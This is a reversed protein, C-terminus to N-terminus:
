IAKSSLYLYNKEYNWFLSLGIDIDITQSLYLFFFFVIRFNFLLFFLGWQLQPINKFQIILGM